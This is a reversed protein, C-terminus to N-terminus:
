ARRCVSGARGRMCLARARRNNLWAALAGPTIAGDFRRAERPVPEGVADDWVFWDGHRLLTVFPVNRVGFSKAVARHADVDVRCAASELSSLWPVVRANRRLASSRLVCRGFVLEHGGADQM